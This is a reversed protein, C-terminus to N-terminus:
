SRPRRAAAKLSHVYNEIGRLRTEGDKAFAAVMDVISSGVIAAEAGAAIVSSVHEPRSFGFGVALPIRGATFKRAFRVSRLTNEELGPRAGTVGLLSVLYLFGSTNRVIRRMREASTAPTALLIGDVKNERTTHCFKSAEDLQLDPVIIGDINNGRAEEIFKEVGRTFIINFYTMLVVPVGHKKKVDRAIELVDVPRTGAQLARVGAAQISKGDAIPDSFPIGIELIDAGGSIVSDIVKRSAEPNPDGGM